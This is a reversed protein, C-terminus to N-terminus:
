SLLTGPAYIQSGRGVPGSASYYTDERYTGRAECWSETAHSAARITRLPWLTHVRVTEYLRLLEPVTRRCVLMWVLSQFKDSETQSPTLTALLFGYRSPLDLDPLIWKLM